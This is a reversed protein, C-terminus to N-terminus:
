GGHASGGRARRAPASRASPRRSSRARGPPSRPSCRRPRTLRPARSAVCRRTEAASCDSSRRRRSGAQALPAFTTLVSPVAAGRRGRGERGLTRLRGDASDRRELAGDERAAAPEAGAAAAAAGGGRAPPWCRRLHGAARAGVRQRGPSPDVARTRDVLGACSPRRPLLDSECGGDNTTATRRCRRGCCGRGPGAPVPTLPRVAPAAPPAPLACRSRACRPSTPTSACATRRPASGLRSRRWPSTFCGSYRGGLALPRRPHFALRHPWGPGRACM